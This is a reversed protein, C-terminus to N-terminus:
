SIGLMKINMVTNVLARSKHRNQSVRIWGMGSFIKRLHEIQSLAKDMTNCDCLIKFTSNWGFLLEEQVVFCRKGGSLLREAEKNSLCINKKELFYDKTIALCM